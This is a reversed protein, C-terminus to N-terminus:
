VTWTVHSVPASKKLRKCACAHCHAACLAEGLIRRFAIPLVPQSNKRPQRVRHQAVQGAPVRLRFMGTSHTSRRRPPGASLIRVQLRQSAQQGADRRPQLRRERRAGLAVACCRYAASARSAIREAM